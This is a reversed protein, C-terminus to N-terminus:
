VGDYIDMAHQRSEDTDEARRWLLRDLADAAARYDKRTMVFHFDRRDQPANVGGLNPGTNDPNRFHWGEVFRPNIGRHPPTVVSSYDEDDRPSEIVKVTWGLSPAPDPVLLFVLNGEIRREFRQGRAVEGAFATRRCTKAGPPEAASALPGALVALLVLALTLARAAAGRAGRAAGSDLRRARRAVRARAGRLGPRRPRPSRALREPLAGGHLPPP